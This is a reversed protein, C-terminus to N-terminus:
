PSKAQPARIMVAYTAFPTRGHTVDFVYIEYRGAPYGDTPLALTLSGTSRDRETRDVWLAHGSQDRVEVELISRSLLPAFKLILTVHSVNPHITVTPPDM